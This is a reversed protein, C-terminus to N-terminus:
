EKEMKSAIEIYERMISKCKIQVEKHYDKIRQVQRFQIFESSHLVSFDQFIDKFSMDLEKKIDMYKELLPKFETKIMVDYTRKPMPLMRTQSAMHSYDIYTIPKKFTEDILKKNENFLKNTQEYFYNHAESTLWSAQIIEELKRNAKTSSNAAIVSYIISVISLIYAPIWWAFDYWFSGIFNDM